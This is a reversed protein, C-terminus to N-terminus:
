ITPTGSDGQHNLQFIARLYIKKHITLYQQAFFHVYWIMPLFEVDAPQADDRNPKWSYNWYVSLLELMRINETTSGLGKKGPLPGGFNNYDEPPTRKLANEQLEQVADPPGDDRPHTEIRVLGHEEQLLHASQTVFSVTLITCAFFVMKARGLLKMALTSM